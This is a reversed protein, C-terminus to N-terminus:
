GLGYAKLKRYFTREAMGLREAAQRRNGRTAELADRMLDREADRWHPPEPEVVAGDPEVVVARRQLPSATLAARIEAVERRIEWLLGLVVDREAQDPTRGHLPVPVNATAGRQLPEPLDALELGDGRAMAAAAHVANRLERVNGPWDAAVLASLAADSWHVPRTGYMARAEALFVQALLAIDGRRASLPPVELHVV